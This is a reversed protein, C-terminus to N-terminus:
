DRRDRPGKEFTNPTETVIPTALDRQAAKQQPLDDAHFCNPFALILREVAQPVERAAAIKAAQDRHVGYRRGDAISPRSWEHAAPPLRELQYEVAKVRAAPADLHQLMSVYALPDWGGRAHIMFGLEDAEQERLSGFRNEVFRMVVSTPPAEQPLAYTNHGIHRLLTHAYAHAMAAALEDENQCRQMAPALIYIHNGGSNFANAISSKAVHFQMERSFMWDNSDNEGVLGREKGVEKAAALLRNTIQQMYGRTPPDTVMAPGLVRHLANAQEILSQDGPNAGGGCGGVLWLMPFLALLLVRM